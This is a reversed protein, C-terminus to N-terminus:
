TTSMHPVGDAELWSHLHAVYDAGFTDNLCAVYAAYASGEGTRALHELTRRHISMYGDRLRLGGHILEVLVESSSKQPHAMLRSELWADLSAPLRASRVAGAGGNRSRAM